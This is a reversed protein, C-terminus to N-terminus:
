WNRRRMYLFIVLVVLGMFALTLWYGYPSQLEPMHHFNMGYVGAIFTIPLFYASFQTLLKMVKNSQQDSMALLMTILSNVEANLHDYDATVDDHKDKLDSIQLRKLKLGSFNGVWEASLNLLRANLASKRKVLYLKRILMATDAHRLFIEKELQDVTELLKISEDNFTKLVKLALMLAIEDATLRESGRHKQLESYTETVTTTELRHVTILTEHVLFIGIKTSVDSVGGPHRKEPHHSERTLFFKVEDAEEYKPLHDRDVTDELLMMDIGWTQHLAELDETTPSQVDVWLCHENEFLTKAAVPM